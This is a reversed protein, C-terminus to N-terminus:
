HGLKVPQNVQQSNILIESWTLTCKGSEWRMLLSILVVALPLMRSLLATRQTRNRIHRRKDQCQLSITPTARHQAMKRSSQQAAALATTSTTTTATTTTTASTRRGLTSTIKTTTATAAKAATASLQIRFLKTHLSAYEPANFLNNWQQACVRVGVCVVPM